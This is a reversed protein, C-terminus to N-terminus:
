LYQGTSPPAPPRPSFESGSHGRRDHVKFGDHLEYAPEARSAMAIRNGQRWQLMDHAERAAAENWTAIARDEIAEDLAQIEDIKESLKRMGGQRWADCEALVDFVRNDLMNQHVNLVHVYGDKWGDYLDLGRASKWPSPRESLLTRDREPMKREIIWMKTRQGWRVRLLSDYRRLQSIFELPPTM